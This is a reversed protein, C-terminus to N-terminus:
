SSGWAAKVLSMEPLPLGLNFSAPNEEEFWGYKKICKDILSGALYSFGGAGAAIVIYSAVTKIYVDWRNPRQIYAKGLALLIICLLSAGAVAALKLDKDNSKTFSFGYVLPPVLGFFVFSFIALVFHLIYNERNGLVVEYRDVRDDDDTENSTRFQESKLGTLNHGLIFLGSILNALSLVVINRTGTNGSAASTVIGLSAISEALGGYVICKVIEWWNYRSPEPEIQEDLSDDISIAVPGERSGVATDTAREVTTPAELSPSFPSSDPETAEVFEPTKPIETKAVAASQDPVPTKNFFAPLRFRDLLGGKSELSPYPIGVVVNEVDIGKKEDFTDTASETHGPTSDARTDTESKSLVAFGNSQNQVLVKNVRSTQNDDQVSGNSEHSTYPIGVVINEVTIGKKTDKAGDLISSDVPSDVKTELTNDNTWMDFEVLQDPVQTKNISDAQIGQKSEVGKVPLVREEAVTPNLFPHTPKSDSVAHIDRTQDAVANGVSPDPGVENKDAVANDVSQNPVPARDVQSEQSDRTEQVQFIERERYEINEVNNGPRSSVEEEPDPSVLRPFLWSGIPVLFSLCSTCRFKDVQTPAPASVTNNVWERDRIIVKTICAQCNPCYFNHSSPKEYIRELYLDTVETGNETRLEVRKYGSTGNDLSTYYSAQNEIAGNSPPNAFALSRSHDRQFKITTGNQADTKRTDVVEIEDSPIVEYVPHDGDIELRSSGNSYGTGQNQQQHQQDRIIFQLGQSNGSFIEDSDTSSSISSQAHQRSTKRLLVNREEEDEAEEEEHTMEPELEPQHKEGIM